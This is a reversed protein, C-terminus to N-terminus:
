QGGVVADAWAKQAQVAEEWCKKWYDDPDSEMCKKLEALRATLAVGIELMAGKTPVNIIKYPITASM